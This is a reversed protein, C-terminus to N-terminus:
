SVPKQEVVCSGGLEPSSVGGLSKGSAKLAPSWGQAILGQKEGQSGAFAM